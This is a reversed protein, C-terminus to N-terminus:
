SIIVAFGHLIDNCFLRDLPEPRCLGGIPARVVTSDTERWIM